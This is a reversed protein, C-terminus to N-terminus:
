SAAPVREDAGAATLEGPATRAELASVREELADLSATVAQQLMHVHHVVPEIEWGVLRGILRKVQSVGPRLSTAPPRTYPPMRRVATASSGAAPQGDGGTVEHGGPRVRATYRQSDTRAGLASRLRFHPWPTCFGRHLVM